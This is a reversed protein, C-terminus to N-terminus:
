LAVEPTLAVQVAFVLLLGGLIALLIALNMHAGEVVIAPIVEHLHHMVHHFTRIFPRM